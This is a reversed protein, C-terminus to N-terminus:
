CGVLLPAGRSRIQNLLMAVVCIRVFLVYVLLPMGWCYGISTYPGKKLSLVFKQRLPFCFALSSDEGGKKNGGFETSSM